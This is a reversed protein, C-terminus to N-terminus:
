ANELMKRIADIKEQILDESCGKEVARSLDGVMSSAMKVTNTRAGFTNVTESFYDQYEEELQDASEDEYYDTCNIVKDLHVAKTYLESMRDRLEIQSKTLQKAM